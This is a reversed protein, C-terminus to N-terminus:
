GYGNRDELEDLLGVTLTPNKNLVRLKIDIQNWTKPMVNHTHTGSSYSVLPSSLNVLTPKM